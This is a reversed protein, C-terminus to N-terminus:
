YDEIYEQLEWRTVDRTAPDDVEAEYREVEDRKMTTFVDIFAGTLLDRLGSDAALAELAAKLTMPLVPRGEDEYAWGAAAPPPEAQRRIGDLAAALVAAMVIYPNATGDGIRLELRTGQGREPPIRIM